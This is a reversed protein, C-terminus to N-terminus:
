RTKGELSELRKQLDAIDKKLVAMNFQLEEIERRLSIYEYLLSLLVAIWIIIEVYWFEM